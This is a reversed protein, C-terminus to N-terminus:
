RPPAEGPARHRSGGRPDAGPPAQREGSQPKKAGAEPRAHEGPGKTDVEDDARRKRCCEADSCAVRQLRDGAHPHQGPDAELRLEIADVVDNRQDDPGRDAAGRQACRDAHRPRPGGAVDGGVCVSGARPGPPDAANPAAMPKPGNARGIRASDSRSRCAKMLTTAPVVSTSLAAMASRFRATTARSSNREM